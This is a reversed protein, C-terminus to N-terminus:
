PGWTVEYGNSANFDNACPSGTPNRYWCQYYKTDGAAVNAARVSIPLPLGSTDSHGQPDAFRVGLRRLQGGACRLGDGWNLPPLLANDAQFYLGGLYPELGTTLLVLTDASLSATGSGTLQAGSPFVGNACGSWWESGDNDNGCPCPTASGPDGFCFGTGPDAGVAVYALANAMLLTGDTFPDWSTADCDASPPYFGLDIRQPSAGEAVLIRGDLWTALLTSGPRLSTGLPRLSASGGDFAQVGSLVPHAPDLITGLTESAGSLLGNNPDIVEYGNRWRGGLSLDSATTCCAWVAVVVGGGRDVYDAMMNGWTYGSVAAEKSWCIVADYALLEQLKPIAVGVDFIDVTGFMGTAMLKAQSDTFECDLSGTSASAVIAVDFQASAVGGTTVCVFLLPLARM